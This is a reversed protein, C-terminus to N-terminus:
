KKPMHFIFLTKCLQFSSKLIPFFKKKFILVYFFLSHFILKIFFFIALSPISGCFQLIDQKLGPAKAWLVM